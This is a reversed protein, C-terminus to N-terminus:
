VVVMAVLDLLSTALRVKRLRLQLIRKVSLHGSDLYARGLLRRKGM